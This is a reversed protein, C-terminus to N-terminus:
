FSFDRTKPDALKRALENEPKDVDAEIFRGTRVNDINTFGLQHLAAKITNGQPDNTGPKVSTEVRLKYRESM